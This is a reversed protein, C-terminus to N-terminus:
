ETFKTDEISPRELVNELSGSEPYIIPHENELHFNLREVAPHRFQIPFEFIRWCAESTSIYRCDLYAKTEDVVINSQRQDNTTNSLNEQLIITARDSGKNIYKFLYKISQSRNCWEVNLHSQYKVLLDVNDPVVYQNDLMIKNKEITRGDNRRRYIPFGEEDITTEEIFRKPFHKTCKDNMM